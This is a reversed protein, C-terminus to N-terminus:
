HVAPPLASTDVFFFCLNKSGPFLQVCINCHKLNKPDIIVPFRFDYSSISTIIKCKDPVLQFQEFLCIENFQECPQEM